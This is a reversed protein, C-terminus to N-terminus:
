SVPSRAVLADTGHMKYYHKAILSHLRAEHLVIFYTKKRWIKDMPDLDVYQNAIENAHLVTSINIYTITISHGTARIHM